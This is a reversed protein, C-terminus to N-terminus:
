GGHLYLDLATETGESWILGLWKEFADVFNPEDVLTGYIDRQELWASPRLRANEAAAKLDGWGPDNPEIVSGDERTGACMRAWLAEVLGFGAVSGDAELADRLIPLVFGAHRASGDFAVRRTTDRIAPNSFRKEILAIYAAPSMGPVPKVYPAIEEHQVKRFFASIRGHAMCGDITDISLLEGANALVQHGANLIRIKMAEFDHVDDVLTAGVKEWEPRGACFDDEVVWQRFDEHTVPAADDIGLARAAAIEAPGTAPVICDVMSNPFSCNDDIWSALEPDILQALSVVTSRAIDGNGRLNDCSQITIPGTGSARRRVLAAVIAGFATRPTEPHAADFVIDPHDPDFSGTSPNVFYGSETVTLSVIRIAPDAVQAILAGNDDEVPLFDIMSGAVEASTGDPSLEILTTLFDQAALKERMVADNQRVGAGIIAWDKADGQQMLRHLYWAQHARHFNGVGIHVIGPSLEDRRYRPKAIGHPLSELTDERLPTAAQEGTGPKPAGTM